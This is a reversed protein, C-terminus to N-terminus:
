QTSGVTELFSQEVSDYDVHAYVDLTVDPSAHGMLYQLAKVNMGAQEMESCFTYRFVRPTIQPLKVDEKQEITKHLYRMFGQLHM